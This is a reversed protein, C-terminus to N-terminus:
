GYQITLFHFLSDFVQRLCISTGFVAALTWTYSRGNSHFLPLTWLYVAGENMRWLIANSLSMVYAARHSVVVGKPNATTGSTYGLAISQWEDEQPKWAFETNAYRLLFSCLVMLQTFMLTSSELETASTDLNNYM